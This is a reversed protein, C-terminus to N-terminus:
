LEEVFGVSRDADWRGHLPRHIAAEEGAASGSGGGPVKRRYERRAAPRPEKLVGFPGVRCPASPSYSRHHEASQAAPSSHPAPRYGPLLLRLEATATADPPGEGESGGGVIQNSQRLEDRLLTSPLAERVVPRRTPCKWMCLARHNIGIRLSNSESPIGGPSSKNVLGDPGQENFRIVWDRLAIRDVTGQLVQAERMDADSPGHRRDEGSTRALQRRASGRDCATSTRNGPLSASSARM